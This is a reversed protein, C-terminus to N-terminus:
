FIIVTDALDAFAGKGCDVLDRGLEISLGVSSFFEVLPTEHLIAHQILLHLILHLDHLANVVYTKVM